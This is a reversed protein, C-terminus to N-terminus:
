ERDLQIPVERRDLRQENTALIFTPPVVLFAADALLPLRQSVVSAPELRRIGWASETIALPDGMPLDMLTTAM